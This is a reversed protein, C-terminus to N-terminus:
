RVTGRYGEFEWAFEESLKTAIQMWDYGECRDIVQQIRAKIAALDYEEVIWLGKGERLPEGWTMQTQVCLDFNDAGSSDPMGIQLLLNLHFDRPNEPSWTAIDESDCSLRKLVGKIKM